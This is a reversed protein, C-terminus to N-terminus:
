IIHRLCDMEKIYKTLREGKISLMYLEYFKNKENFIPTTCLCKRYCLRNQEDYYEAVLFGNGTSGYPYHKVEQLLKM